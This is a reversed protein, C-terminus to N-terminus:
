EKTEERKEEKGHVYVQFGKGKQLMGTLGELLSRMVNINKMFEKTLETATEKDMGAEVLDKYFQAVSKGLAQMKEPSYLDALLKQLPELIDEVMPGLKDMLMAIKDLDKDGEYAEILKKVAKVKRELVEVEEETKASKIEEILEEVVKELKEKEM